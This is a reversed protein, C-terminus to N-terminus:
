KYYQCEKNIADQRSCRTYTATNGFRQLTIVSNDIINGRGLISFNSQRVMREKPSSIPLLHPICIFFMGCSEVLQPM